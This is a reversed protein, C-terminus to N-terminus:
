PAYEDGIADAGSPMRSYIVTPSTVKWIRPSMEAIDHCGGIRVLCNLNVDLAADRDTPKATLNFDIMGNWLDSSRGHPNLSFAAWLDNSHVFQIHVVPSNRHRSEQSFSIFFFEFRGRFISFYADLETYRFLHTWSVARNNMQLHYQCDLETCQEDRKLKAGYRQRLAEFEPAPDPSAMRRLAALLEGADNRVNWAAVFVALCLVLAASVGIQVTKRIPM